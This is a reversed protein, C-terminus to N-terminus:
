KIFFLLVFADRMKIDFSKPADVTVKIVTVGYGFIPNSSVTVYGGVPINVVGSTEKGLLILGGDLTICWNVDIADAFGVNKIVASVKFLGGSINCVELVPAAIYITLPDSWNSEANYIDKVKVMINYEGSGTWTHSAPATAGSDFPGLWDSLTGGGWDWQYYVQDGEPDTTNTSFIYEIDIIGETPGDPRQPTDPPLGPAELGAWINWNYNLGPIDIGLQEWTEGDDTIWGGKGPVVPGPGVGAPLEGEAHTVEITVWIDKLADIVASNSLTTTEWDSSAATTFAESTLLEGPSSSTGADYIKITGSHSPQLNDVFGHHWKVTTLEWTDYEALETPTIRIGFEFTGAEYLGIANVNFKSDYSIWDPDDSPEVISSKTQRKYV